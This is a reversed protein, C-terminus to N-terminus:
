VYRSKERVNKRGIPIEPPRSRLSGFINSTRVSKDDRSYSFRNILVFM